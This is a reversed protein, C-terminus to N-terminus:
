FQQLVHEIKRSIEPIDHINLGLGSPIYFGKRAVFESVPFSQTILQPYHKRLVPQQHLPHFFHRTGIGEHGLAAMVETAEAPFDEDLVLTYVWYINEAYDTRVM